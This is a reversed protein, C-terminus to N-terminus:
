QKKRAEADIKRKAVWHNKNIPACLYYRYYNKKQFFAFFHNSADGRELIAPM